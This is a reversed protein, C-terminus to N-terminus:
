TAQDLLLFYTEGNIVVPVKWLDKTGPSYSGLTSSSVTVQSVGTIEIDDRFELEGISSQYSQTRLTADSAGATGIKEWPNNDSSFARTAGIFVGPSDSANINAQSTNSNAPDDVTSSGELKIDKPTITDANSRYKKGIFYNATDSNSATQQFVPVIEGNLWSFNSDDQIEPPIFNTLNNRIVPDKRIIRFDQVDTITIKIDSGGGIMTSTLTLVDGVRYNSGIAKGTPDAADNAFEITAGYDSTNWVAGSGTGGSATLNSFSDNSRSLDKRGDHAFKIISGSAAWTRGGITEPPYSTIEHITSVGVVLGAGVTENSARVSIKFKDLGNSSCVYYNPSSGGVVSTAGAGTGFTVTHSFGVVDDNTFVLERAEGNTYPSTNSKQFSFFSALGVASTDLTLSSIGLQSTNRLNNRLIALDNSLGAQYLNNWTASDDLGEVLNLDKRYGQNAIVPM